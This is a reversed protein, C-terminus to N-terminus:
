QSFYRYDAGYYVRLQKGIDATTCGTTPAVGGLTNLRQLSTINSFVGARADAKTTILLHPIAGPRTADVRARLTGVIKSGDDSEWSPGAYHKGIRRGTADFLDAEPAVFAWAPKGDVLKCEYIQVGVAAYTFRATEGQPVLPAPVAASPQADVIAIAFMGQLGVCFRLWPNSLYSTQKM